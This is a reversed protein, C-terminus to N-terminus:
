YVKNLKGKGLTPSHQHLVQYATLTCPKTTTSGYINSDTGGILHCTIGKTFYALGTLFGEFTNSLGRRGM